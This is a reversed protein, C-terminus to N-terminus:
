REIIFDFNKKRFFHTFNYETRNAKDSTNFNVSDHSGAKM